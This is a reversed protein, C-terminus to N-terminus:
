EVKSGAGSRFSGMQRNVRRMVSFSHIDVKGAASEEHNYLDIDYDTENEHRGYIENEHSFDDSDDSELIYRICEIALKIKKTRMVDKM